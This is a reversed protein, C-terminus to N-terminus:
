DYIQKILDNVLKEETDGDELSCQDEVFNRVQDEIHEKSLYNSEFKFHNITDENWYYEM